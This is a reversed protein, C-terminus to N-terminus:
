SRQILHIPSACTALKGCSDRTTNTNPLKTGFINLAVNGLAACSSNLTSIDMSSIRDISFSASTVNQSIVSAPPKVPNPIDDDAQRTTETTYGDKTVTINYAQVGAALDLLQLTGQNNTTDTFDVPPTVTPAAIHVAAGQVPVANADFVRIFLAGKTPDGELYRPAITTTLRVPVTQRCSTCVIELDVFKYDAPVTDGPTGGILGDYPDDVNRIVRTLTFDLGSKTTTVTRGLVGPPSGNVIGVQEYPMNRLTEVEENLLASEILRMRSQYLIKFTFQLGGYVGIALILFIALSIISELLSFGDRKLFKGSM